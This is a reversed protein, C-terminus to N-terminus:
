AAVECLGGSSGVFVFIVLREVVVAAAGNAWCCIEYVSAMWAAGVVAEACGVVEVGDEEGVEVGAGLGESGGDVEAVEEDPALGEGGVGVVDAEGAIM